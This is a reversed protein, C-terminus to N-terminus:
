DDNRITCSLIEGFPTCIEELEKASVEENLNKVFINAEPKFDGPSRKFCIRMEWGELKKYNLEEKARKADEVNKYSVFGFGRSEGSYIDRMIRCSVLEGYPGFFDFIRSDELSPHLNGIYLTADKTSAEKMPNEQMMFNPSLNNQMM